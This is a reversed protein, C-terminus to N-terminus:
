RSAYLKEGKEAIGETAKIELPKIAGPGLPLIGNQRIPLGNLKNGVYAKSLPHEVTNEVIAEGLRIVDGLEGIPLEDRNQDQADLM